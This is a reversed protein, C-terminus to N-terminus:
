DRMKNVFDLLMLKYFLDEFDELDFGYRRYFDFRLGIIFKNLLKKKLIFNIINLYIKVDNMFCFNDKYFGFWGYM